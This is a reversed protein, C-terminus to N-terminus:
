DCPTAEANAIAAQHMMCAACKCGALTGNDRDWIGDIDHAHGRYQGPRFGNPRAAYEILYAAKIARWEEVEALLEDHKAKLTAITTAMIECETPPSEDPIQHPAYEQKARAADYYRDPFPRMSCNGRVCGNDVSDSLPWGCIACRNIDKTHESM